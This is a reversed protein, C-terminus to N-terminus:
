GSYRKGSRLLVQNEAPPPAIQLNSVAGKATATVLALAREAVAANSARGILAMSDRSARVDIEEDPFTERLLRRMPELNPEVTVSYAKRKGLKSWIMVTARGLGKM